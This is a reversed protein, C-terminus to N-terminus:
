AVKRGSYWRYLLVLGILAGFGVLGALITGLLDLVIASTDSAVYTPSYAMNEVGCRLSNM